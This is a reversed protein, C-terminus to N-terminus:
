ARSKMSETYWVKLHVCIGRPPATMGHLPMVSLPAVWFSFRGSARASRFAGTIWPLIMNKCFLLNSRRKKEPRVPPRRKRRKPKQEAADAAEAEAAKEMAEAHAKGAAVGAEYAAATKDATEKDQEADEAVNVTVKVPFEKGLKKALVAVGLGAAAVATM